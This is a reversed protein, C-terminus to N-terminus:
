GPWGVLDDVQEDSLGAHAQLAALLPDGRLVVSLGAWTIRADIPDVSAPLADLADAFSDPWEGKAALIAEDPMLIGADKLARCFQTRSVEARVRWAARLEAESKQPKDALEPRGDVMVVVRGAELGEVLAAWEAQTLPVADGPLDPTTDGDFFGREAASYFLGM